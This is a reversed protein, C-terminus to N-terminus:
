SVRTTAVIHAFTHEPAPASPTSFELNVFVHQERAPLVFSTVASEDGPGDGAVTQRVLVVDRRGVKTVEASTVAEDAGAAQAALRLFDDLPVDGPWPLVRAVLGAYSPGGGPQQGFAAAAFVCHTELAHRGTAVLMEVLADRTGALEPHREVWGDVLRASSQEATRPDLDIRFWGEPLDIELRGTAM